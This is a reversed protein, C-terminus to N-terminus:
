KEVGFCEVFRKKIVPIESENPFGDEWLLKIFKKKAQEFDSLLLVPSVYAGQKIDSYIIVYKIKM